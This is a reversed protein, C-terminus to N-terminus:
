PGRYDIWPHPGGAAGLDVREGTAAEVSAVPFSTLGQYSLPFHRMVGNPDAQMTTNGVRAGVEEAVGEGGFVNGEGEDVETASLTVGEAAEVARILANDDRFDTPESFQVDYAIARAGAERLADILRAHFRRPFPWRRQLVQFTKDDIGVVVLDDPRPQTGRISFRTDVTNLDQSRLADTAYALVGIGVAVAAVIVLGILR